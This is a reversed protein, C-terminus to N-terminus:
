VKAPHTPAAEFVLVEVGDLIAHTIRQSDFCAQWATAVGDAITLKGIHLRIKNQRITGTTTLEVEKAADAETAIELAWGSIALSVDVTGVICVHGATATTATEIIGTLDIASGNTGDTLSGKTLTYKPVESVVSTTIKFPHSFTGGGGGSGGLAKTDPLDFPGVSDGRASIGTTSGLTDGSREALTYSTHPRKNLLKLFELFDQVAYDPNPGFSLTVNQSAIDWSVSHIPAGMTAWEAVGGTLHLKSGHWRTAGVDDERITASGEFYCGAALTEYYAQAVGVPADEGAEYSSVGKYVKTIANTGTVAFATPVKELKAAEAESAGSEVTLTFGIDVQGVRKQMWETVTGRVLERPTQSIDTALKRTLKSDIPDISEDTEAILTKSWDTITFNADDIAAISPFKKKLYAKATSADAPITRTQVQQKEIQMQLGALPILTTLVGPGSDAGALPWKDIVGDRYVEDDIMSATLYVIRVTDPVRDQTKTVGFSTCDTVALSRATASARPTVHFTPITTSHDIWPIWDPYYRLSDRIIQACTLGSAESPWLTMGTPISGAQINIGATAAFAIIGAIEAGVTIRAGAANMGLVIQPSLYSGGQTYWVQQYITRELEDWADAIVYSHGEDDAAGFKPVQRVRGQFFKVGDRKVTVASGYALIETADFDCVRELRLSSASGSRFEGGVLTLGLSEPSFDNILWTSM